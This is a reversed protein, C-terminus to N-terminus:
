WKIEYVFAQYNAVLFCLFLQLSLLYLSMDSLQARPYCNLRTRISWIMFSSISVFFYSFIPFLLIYLKKLFVFVKFTYLTSFSRRTTCLISRFVNISSKYAFFTTVCNDGYKVAMKMQTTVLNISTRSHGTFLYLCDVDLHCSGCLLWTSAHCTSKVIHQLLLL